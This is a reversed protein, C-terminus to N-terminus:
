GTGGAIIRAMERLAKMINQSPRAASDEDIPFVRGEKVATMNQFNSRSTIDTVYDSGHYALVFIYDPNRNIIEEESASFWGKQDTFINKGGAIEIMENLYVDQGFTVMTPISSIEFYVKNNTGPRNEFATKFEAIEEQMSHVLAEGRDKVDLAAAIQIIDGCIGEISNSTSVQVIKIGLDGLLKFPNDAVGFSNIENVVIMDPALSIIAETDPYFFDIEILGEPVGPINGSYKDVAILSGGMGLGIIIETNSPSASIIRDTRVASSIEPAATNRYCCALFFIIAIFAM